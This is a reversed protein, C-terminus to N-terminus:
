PTGGVDNKHHEHADHEDNEHHEHADHAHPEAHHTVSAGMHAHLQLESDLLFTGSTAITEGARLGQLIQITTREVRGISVERPEFVNDEVEVFVRNHQGTRMVAGRPVVVAADQNHADVDADLASLPTRQIYATVFAGDPLWPTEDDLRIRVTVTRTQPDVTPEIFEVHGWRMEGTDPEVVQVVAQTHVDRWDKLRVQAEVRMSSLDSLEYLPSGTQVYQGQRAVIKTITGSSQAYLTVNKSSQGQKEIRDVQRASMGALLLRDRTAQVLSDAHPSQNSQAHSLALMFEHQAAFLEPSYVEMVPQGRKIKSGVEKIVLREIRGDVWSPVESLGNQDAAIVGVARIARALEDDSGRLDGGGQSPVLTSVVTTHVNALVRQAPSLAVQRLADENELRGTKKGAKKFVLDMKCIPCSGPRDSVISPHMPCTYFGASQEEEEDEEHDGHEDHGHHHAEHGQGAGEEAGSEQYVLDMKCIPCSGFEDSVVEPHMPCIYHGTKGSQQVSAHQSKPEGKTCASTLGIALVAISATILTRHVLPIERKNKFM